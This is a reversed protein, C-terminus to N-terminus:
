ADAVPRTAPLPSSCLKPANARVCPLMMAHVSLLILDVVVVVPLPTHRASGSHSLTYSTCITHGIPSCPHQLSSALPLPHAMSRPPRAPMSLQLSQRPFTPTSLEVNTSPSFPARCGCMRLGRQGWSGRSHIDIRQWAQEPGRAQVTIDKGYVRGASCTALMLLCPASVRPPPGTGISM